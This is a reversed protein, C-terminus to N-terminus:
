KYPANVTDPLPIMLPGTKDKKGFVSVNVYRKPHLRLDDLLLNLKNTTATLNNYLRTDNMLLGLTGKDSSFKTIVGKLETITGNLTTLTKEVDLKSFNDTTKEVNTLIGSLKENNAALNGTFKSVNDLSKALAGTQTNLLTQLSAASVAMSATATNVNELTARLNNKAAPDVVSNVTVLVSDLAKVANKVEYLVPDLKQLADDVISASAQTSITDNNAFYQVGTGLKIELSITGLLSASIVAVSNKPIQYNGNMNLTVTINKLDKTFDTAAVTGVQKGNIVVPNSNTLGKVDSFVAYYKTGKGSFNKGKLFNFGLVLLTIAIATLAGVKTESSIKMLASLNIQLL